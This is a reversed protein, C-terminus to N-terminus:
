WSGFRLEQKWTLEFKWELGNKNKSLEGIGHFMNLMLEMWCDLVM